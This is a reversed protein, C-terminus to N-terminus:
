ILNQHHYRHLLRTMIGREISVFRFECFSFGISDRIGFEFTPHNSRPLGLPDDPIIPIARLERPAPTFFFSSFNSVFCSHFSLFPPTSVVLMVFIIGRMM